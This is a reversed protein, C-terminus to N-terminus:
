YCEEVNKPNDVEVIQGIQWINNVNKNGFKNGLVIVIEVVISTEKYKIMKAQYWCGLHEVKICKNPKYDKFKRFSDLKYNHIELIRKQELKIRLDNYKTKIQQLNEKFDTINQNISIIEDELKSIQNKKAKHNSIWDNMKEKKMEIKKYIRTIREKLISEFSGLYHNTSNKFVSDIELILLDFDNKNFVPIELIEEFEDQGIQEQIETDLKNEITKNLNMILNDKDTLAFYEVDSDTERHMEYSNYEEISLSINVLCLFVALFTISLNLKTM